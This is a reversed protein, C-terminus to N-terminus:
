WAPSFVPPNTISAAVARKLLSAVFAASVGGNQSLSHLYTWKQLQAADSIRMEGCGALNEPAYILDASFM